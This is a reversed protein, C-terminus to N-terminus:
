EKSKEAVAGAADSREDTVPAAKLPYDAARTAAPVSGSFIGAALAQLEILRAAEFKSAAEDRAKTAGANGLAAALTKWVYYDEEAAASEGPIAIALEALASATRGGADLSNALLRQRLQSAVDSVVEAPLKKQLAMRRSRARNLGNLEAAWQEQLAARLDQPVGKGREYLLGVAFQAPAFGADALPRWLSFAEGARGEALARFGPQMSALKARNEQATTDVASEACSAPTLPAAVITMAVIAATWEFWKPDKRM